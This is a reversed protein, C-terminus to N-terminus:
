EEENGTEAARAVVVHAPRLLKEGMMYGKQAVGVVTGPPAEDTPQEAVADHVNHDFLEGLADVPRIGYRELTALFKDRVLAVGEVLGGGEGERGHELARELDDLIGLMDLAFETRAAEGAEGFLVQMRRQLNVYDARARRATELYEDRQRRLTEIDADDEGPVIIRRERDDTEGKGAKEDKLVERETEPKDKQRMICSRAM